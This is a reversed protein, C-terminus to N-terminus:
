AKGRFDEMKNDFVIHCQMFQHSIDTSKGDALMNFAVRINELVKSLANAWLNNGNKADLTLAQEVNIPLEICFNHSKKLYRIQQKRVRAIIRDRKKFM